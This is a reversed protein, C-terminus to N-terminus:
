TGKMKKYQIGVTGGSVSSAVQQLGWVAICSLIIYVHNWALIHLLQLQTTVASSNILHKLEKRTPEIKLLYISVATIFCPLSLYDYITHKQLIRQILLIAGLIIVLSTIAELYWPQSQINAYYSVCTQRQLSTPTGRLIWIDCALDVTCLGLVFAAVSQASLITYYLVAYCLVACCLMLTEFPMITLLTPIHDAFHVSFIAVSQHHSYQVSGHQVTDYQVANYQVTHM